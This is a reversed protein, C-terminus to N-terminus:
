EEITTLDKFRFTPMVGDWGQPTAMIERGIKLLSISPYVEVYQLNKKLAKCILSSGINPKKKFQFYFVMLEPQKSFRSHDNPEM